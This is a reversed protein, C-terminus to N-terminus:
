PIDGKFSINHNERKQGAAKNIWLDLFIDAIDALMDIIFDFM